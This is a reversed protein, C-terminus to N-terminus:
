SKSASGRINADIVILKPCKVGAQKNKVHEAMVIRLRRPNGIDM